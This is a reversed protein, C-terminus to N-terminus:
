VILFNSLDVFHHLSFDIRASFPCDEVVRHDIMDTTPV